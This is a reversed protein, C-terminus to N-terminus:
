VAIQVEGDVVRTEYRPVSQTAPMTLARGTTIDFTAGHRPCEIVTDRLEGEALPGEDHTCAYYRDGVNFVAIRHMDIEIVMREGPKIEDTTAVTVFTSL